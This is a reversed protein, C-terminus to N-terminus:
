KQLEVYWLYTIYSSTTRQLEFFFFDEVQEKHLDEINDM